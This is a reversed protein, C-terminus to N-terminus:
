AGVYWSHFPVDCDPPQLSWFTPLNLKVGAWLGCDKNQRGRGILIGQMRADLATESPPRDAFSREELNVGAVDPLVSRFRDSLPECSELTTM